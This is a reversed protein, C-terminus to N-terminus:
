PALVESLTVVQYGAARLDSIVAPLASAEQASGLHMLVIAGPCAKAAVRQRIGDATADPEWDLTDFTWLVGIYGLRNVEAVLEDSGAGYPFRFYPRTSLGTLAAVEDETRSIQSRVEEVTLSTFRPHSYSHNGFEHGEAAMRRVADPNDHAFQGTVFFTSHVGASRLADLIASAPGGDGGADFTLAIAREGVNGRSVQGWGLSAALAERDIALPSAAPPATSAPEEVTVERAPPSTATDRAPASGSCGSLALALIALLVAAPM